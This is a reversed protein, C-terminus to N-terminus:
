CTIVDVSSLAQMLRKHHLCWNTSALPGECVSVLSCVLAFRLTFSLVSRQRLRQDHHPGERQGRPLARHRQRAARREARREAAGGRPRRHEDDREALEGDAADVSLCVAACAHASALTSSGRGWSSHMMIQVSIIMTRVHCFIMSQGISIAGYINSLAQFKDEKSTCM